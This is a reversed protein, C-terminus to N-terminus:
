FVTRLIHLSNKDCYNKIVAEETFGCNKLVKIKSASESFCYSFAQRIGNKKLLELSQRILKETRNKYLPHIEWDFVPSHNESGFAFPNLCFSWGFCHKEPTLACYVYGRQDEQMFLATRFSSVADSVFIRESPLNENQLSFRLLCDIEHRYKMNGPVVSVSDGQTYYRKQFEMFNEPMDSNALMMPGANHGSLVPKFGQKQYIGAVWERYSLCFAAVAPSKKFDDLFYKVLHTTIGKGRHEPATYVHGFDAIPLPNIGYGYWLQSALKGNIEAIFYKDVAENLYKGSLRARISRGSEDGKHRLFVALNESYEPEPPVLLKITAKEGNKLTIVDLTKLM